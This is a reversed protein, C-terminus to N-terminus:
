PKPTDYDENTKEYRGSGRRLRGLGYIAEDGDVAEANVVDVPTARFLRRQDEDVAEIAHRAREIMDDRVEGAPKADNGDVHASMAVRVPIRLRTIDDFVMDAVELSQDRLETEPVDRQPSVGGASAHHLDEGPLVRIEDSPDNRLVDPWFPRLLDRVAVRAPDLLLILSPGALLLEERGQHLGGAGRFRHDSRVDAIACLAARIAPQDPLAIRIEDFPEHRGIQPCRDAVDARRDQIHEAPAAGDNRRGGLVREPVRERAHRDDRDRTDPVVRAVLLGGLEERDDVLEEGGLLSAGRRQQGEEGGPLPTIHASM